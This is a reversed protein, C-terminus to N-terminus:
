ASLTQEMESYKLLRLAELRLAEPFLTQYIRCNPSKVDYRGTVRFTLAPCGGTCMYRWTCDRCGEKEEVSPNRLGIQDERILKLPDPASIDTIRREMEMHCKSIGGRQDIVMYSDGVGCTREHPTNLRTLDILSGLLSYPPLDQAIVDFTKRMAEIIRDDNYTLDNFSSSCDNERYFNLTFPLKRKLVYSVTEPLGELNRNSVTISISPTLGGAAIRDLARDVHMFSGHGNVFPRQADHYAGVGDLSIMLRIGNDRMAAIMHKTLAVGNSLVVGDLELNHKEALKQAHNHLELVLPFNLTAEGGAYKIKVREFRQAVASRFVAEIAKIGQEREMPEPTKHVFCYPCRLNCDNTVHMWATLTSAEPLHPRRPADVPEILSADALRTLFTDIESQHNYRRAVETLSGPQRFSRLVSLADQNLIAVGSQARPNFAMMLDDNLKRTYLEPLTYLRDKKIPSTNPRVRLGSDPCACNTETLVVITTAISQATILIPIIPLM